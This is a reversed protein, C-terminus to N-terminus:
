IIIIVIIHVFAIHIHVHVLVDRRVAESPVHGKEEELFAEFRQAVVQCSELDMDMYSIIYFILYCRIYYTM